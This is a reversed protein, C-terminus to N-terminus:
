EKISEIYEEKIRRFTTTDDDQNAKMGGLIILKGENIVIGYVRLHKSKFEFERFGGKAKNYFHFKTKPLSKLNALQDMYSYITKLESKYIEELDDEFDDIQCVGDKILKYFKQTGKITDINRTEFKPM